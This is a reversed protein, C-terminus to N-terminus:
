FVKYYNRVSELRKSPEDLKALSQKNFPLVTLLQGNLQRGPVRDLVVKVSHESLCAVSCFGKSQGNQRNEGFRVEVIDNM